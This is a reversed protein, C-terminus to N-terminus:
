SAPIRATRADYDTLNGPEYLAGVVPMPQRGFTARCWRASPHVSETLVAGEDRRGSEGLTGDIVRVRAGDTLKSRYIWSLSNHLAMRVPRAECLTGLAARDIELACTATVRNIMWRLTVNALGRDCWSYGGGIDAHAGTFWVQEVCQGREAAGAQQEWLTPLFPRRREDMAIAHFGREVRSSLRVDHFGHRLRSVAGIPGEIPIGLAGVTDWVGICRIRTDPHSHAFRFDVAKAAVPTSDQSRSRYLSFAEEIARERAADSDCKGPDVIGSNRILGALSRVTYAGRSFGFFYLEDGPAYHDVLFRYCALVNRRLGRGTLGGLVRDIFGGTGVGAHYYALQPTGKSDRETVLQFILWVNTPVPDGSSTRYPSNWTGDACIVIRKATRRPDPLEQNARAEAQRYWAGRRPAVLEITRGSDTTPGAFPELDAHLSEPTM